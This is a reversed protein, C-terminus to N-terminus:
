LAKELLNQISAPDTDNASRTLERKGKFILIISRTNAKLKRMGEKDNDFDVEYTGCRISVPIRCSRISLLKKSSVHRAGPRMSM